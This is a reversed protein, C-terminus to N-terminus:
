IHILSLKIEALDHSYKCNTRTCKGTDRLEYCIGPGKGGGSGGKGSGKKGKNGDQGAVGLVTLAPVTGLAAARASTIAKSGAKVGEIEVLVEHAEEWTQAVRTTTGGAGDPRPRRDMRITEAMTGGMKILYSVFKELPAKGLGVEELEAHIAEWEAEFQLATM